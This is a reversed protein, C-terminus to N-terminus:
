KGKIGESAKRADSATKTCGCLGCMVKARHRKGGDRNVHGCTEGTAAPRAHCMWANGGAAPNSKATSASMDVGLEYLEILGYEEDLPDIYTKM